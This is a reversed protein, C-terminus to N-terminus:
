PQSKAPAPVFVLHHPSLSPSPPALALMLAEQEKATPEYLPTPVVQHRNPRTSCHACARVKDRWLGCSTCRMKTHPRQASPSSSMSIALSVTDVATARKAAVQWRNPQSACLICESAKSKWCGCVSCREKTHQVFSTPRVSAEILLRSPVLQEVQRRNPRSACHKCKLMKEVWLGCGKCRQKAHWPM